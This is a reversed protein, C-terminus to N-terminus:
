SLRGPHPMDLSLVAPRRSRNNPNLATIVLDVERIGTRILTPDDPLAAVELEVGQRTLTRLNSPLACTGGACAKAFECALRETAAQVAPPIPLGVLYTVEFAPTALTYSPCTPWCSGDTRILTNGGAVRYAGAGLVVGNIKVAVIGATTTPGDLLVSCSGDVSCACSSENLGPCWNHWAGAAIYPGSLFGEYQVPYTQYEPLLEDRRCPQVTIQCQGFQRGTAAWMVTTAIASASARVTPSYKDWCAGCACQTITWGCPSM